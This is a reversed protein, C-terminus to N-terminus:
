NSVKKIVKRNKYILEIFYLGKPFQYLKEISTEILNGNLSYINTSLLESNYIEEDVSLLATAVYEYIVKTTDGDNGEVWFDVQSKATGMINNPYFQLVTIIYDNPLLLFSGVTDTENHFIFAFDFTADWGQPKPVLYKKKWNIKLTDDSLSQMKNPYYCVFSSASSTFYVSDSAMEFLKKANTLRVFSLLVIIITFIKKM